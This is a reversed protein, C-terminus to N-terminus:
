ADTPAEQDEAPAQEVEAEQDEAPAEEEAPDQQDEAATVEEEPDQQDEAPTVEEEPDQQDEAPAYAAEYMEATRSFLEKASIAGLEPNSKRAVNILAMCYSKRTAAEQKWGKVYDLAAQYDEYAKLIVANLKDM